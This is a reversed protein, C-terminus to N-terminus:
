RHAVARAHAEVRRRWFAPNGRAEAPLPEASPFTSQTLESLRRDANARIHVPGNTLAACLGRMAPIDDPGDPPRIGASRFGEDIIDALNFTRQGSIWQDYEALTAFERNAAVALASLIVRDPVGVVRRLAALDDDNCTRALATVCSTRVASLDSALGRRFADRDPGAAAASCLAACAASRVRADPDDLMWQALRERVAASWAAAMRLKWLDTVRCSPPASALEAVAIDGYRRGGFRILSKFDRPDIAGDRAIRADAWIRARSAAALAADGPAHSEELRRWVAYLSDLRSKPSRAVSRCVELAVSQDCAQWVVETAGAVSEVTAVRDVLADIGDRLLVDAAHRLAAREREISRLEAAAFDRARGDSSGADRVDALLTVAARLDGHLRLTAAAVIRRAAIEESTGSDDGALRAAGALTNSVPDHIPDAVVCELTWAELGDLAAAVAPVGSGSLVRPACRAASELREAWAASLWLATLEPWPAGARTRIAAADNWPDGAARDVGRARASEGGVGRWWNALDDTVADAFEHSWRVYRCARCVTLGDHRGRRDWHICGDPDAPPVSCESSTSETPATVDAGCVPCKVREDRNGASAEEGAHATVVGPAAGAVVALACLLAVRAARGSTWRRPAPDRM